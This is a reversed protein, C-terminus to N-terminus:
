AHSRSRREIAADGSSGSVTQDIMPAAGRSATMALFDQRSIPSLCPGAMADTAPVVFPRQARLAQVIPEDYLEVDGLRYIRSFRDANRIMPAGAEVVSKLQAHGVIGQGPVFFCVWDGPTGDHQLVGDHCIGLVRRAVIVSALLQEPSAMDNSVLTAVWFDPDHAVVQPLPASIYAAAPAVAPAAAPATGQLVERPRATDVPRDLLDIVFDLAFGSRLLKVVEGHTLRDDKFKTALALLSQVSM